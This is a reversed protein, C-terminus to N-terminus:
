VFQKQGDLEKQGKPNLGGVNEVLRAGGGLLRYNRKEFSKHFSTM